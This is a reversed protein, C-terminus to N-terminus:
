LKALLDCHGEISSGSDSDRVNKRNSDFEQQLPRQMHLEDYNYRRTYLYTHRLFTTAGKDVGEVPLLPRRISTTSWPTTTSGVYRRGLKYGLQSGEVLWTPPRPKRLDYDTSDNTAGRNSEM